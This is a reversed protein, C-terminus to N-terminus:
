RRLRACTRCTSARRRSASRWARSSGRTSSSATVTRRMKPRCQPVLLNRTRTLLLLFLVACVCGWLSGCEGTVFRKVSLMPTKPKEGGKDVLAAGSFQKTDLRRKAFDAAPTNLRKSPGDLLDGLPMTSRKYKTIPASIPSTPVVAKNTAVLAGLGTLSPSGPKKGAMLAGLGGASLGAKKVPPTAPKAKAAGLLAGFGGGPKKMEDGGFLGALSGGGGGGSGGFHGGAGGGGGEYVTDVVGDVYYLSKYTEDDM